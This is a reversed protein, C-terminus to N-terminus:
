RCIYHHAAGQMTIVQMYLSAGGQIKLSARGAGGRAAGRRGLFGARDAGVISSHCYIVVDFTVM